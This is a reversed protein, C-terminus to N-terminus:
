GNNREIELLRTGAEVKQGEEMHLFIVIRLTVKITSYIGECSPQQDM